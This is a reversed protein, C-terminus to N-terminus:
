LMYSTDLKSCIPDFKLKVRISDFFKYRTHYVSVSVDRQFHGSINKNQKTKTKQTGYPVSHIVHISPSM